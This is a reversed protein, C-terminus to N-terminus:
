LLSVRDVVVVVVVVVVIIIFPLNEYQLCPETNLLM